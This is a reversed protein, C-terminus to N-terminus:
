WPFNPQHGWQCTQGPRGKRDAQEDGGAKSAGLNMHPLIGLTARVVGVDRRGVNVGALEVDLHRRRLAIGRGAAPADTFHVLRELLAAALALIRFGLRGVFGRLFRLELALAQIGAPAQLIIPRRGLQDGEGDAVFMLTVPKLVIRDVGDRSEHVDDGFVLAGYKMEIVKARHQWANPPFHNALNIRSLGYPVGETPELIELPADRRVIVPDIMPVLLLSYAWYAAFSVMLASVYRVPRSMRASSVPPAAARAKPIGTRLTKTQTAM